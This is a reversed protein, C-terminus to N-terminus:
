TVGVFFSGENFNGFAYDLSLGTVTADGFGSDVNGVLAAFAFKETVSEYGLGLIDVDGTTGYSLGLSDYDPKAIFSVLLLLLIKKM